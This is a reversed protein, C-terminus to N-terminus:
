LSFMSKTCISRVGDWPCTKKKPLQATWLSFPSLHKQSTRLAPANARHAQLAPSRTQQQTNLGCQRPSLKGQKPSSFHATKTRTTKLQHETSTEQSLTTDPRVCVGGRVARPWGVLLHEINTMTSTTQGTEARRSPRNISLSPLCPNPSGLPPVAALPQGHQPVRPLPFLASAAVRNIDM